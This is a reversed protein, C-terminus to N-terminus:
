MKYIEEYYGGEGVIFPNLEKVAYGCSSLLLVFLLIILLKKM